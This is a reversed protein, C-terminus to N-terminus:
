RGRMMYTITPKRFGGVPGSNSRTDAEPFSDSCAWAILGVAALGTIITFTLM